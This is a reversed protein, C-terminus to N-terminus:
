LSSFQNMTVEELNELFWQTAQEPGIELLLYWNLHQLPWGDDRSSLLHTMQTM